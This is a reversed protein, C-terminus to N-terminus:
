AVAVEGARPADVPQRWDEPDDPARDSKEVDWIVVEGPADDRLATHEPPIEADSLGARTTPVSFTLDVAKLVSTASRFSRDLPVAEFHQEAGQVRTKFYDLSRAFGKPDAGQFSYISQKEDGVAFVTRVSQDVRAGDGDFFEDAFTQIVDWQLPSTDQAEDVLIHDIGQDLKYRVWAGGGQRRLMAATREILDDFDLYGRVRKLTEYHGILAKAVTLARMTDDAEGLAALAHQVDLVTQAAHGHIDQYGPIAACLNKPFMHQTRLGYEDDKGKLFCQKLAEFRDRLDHLKSASRVNRAFERITTRTQSAEHALIAEVNQAEGFWPLPWAQKLISAETAHEDVGLAQRVLRQRENALGSGAFFMALERRRAIINTLLADFKAEGHTTLIDDIADVLYPPRAVGGLVARKAEAIIAEARYDDLLEFHGAVNAELPFRHLLAECFAHITQIKLGGPAELSRAFLTRALVMTDRKPERGQVSVLEKRLAADDMTVWGGLRKFIRGKMEAAATKTYTLCLLKSPDVGDLLLRIVRTALVYTKGSGANASVFASVAPDAALRQRSITEDDPKVARAAEAM